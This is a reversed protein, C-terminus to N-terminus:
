DMMEKMRDKAKQATEQASHAAETTKEKVTNKAETLNEKAVHAAHEAKKKMSDGAHSSKEEARMEAHKADITAQDAADMEKKKLNDMVNLNFLVHVKFLHFESFSQHNIVKVSFNSKILIYFFIM